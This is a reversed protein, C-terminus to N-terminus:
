RAGILSLLSFLASKIHHTRYMDIILDIATPGPPASGGSSFGWLNAFGLSQSYGHKRWELIM